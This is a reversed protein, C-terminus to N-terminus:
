LDDWDIGGQVADGSKARADGNEALKSQETSVDPSVLSTQLTGMLAEENLSRLLKGAQGGSNRGGIQTVANFAWTVRWASADMTNSPLVEHLQWPPFLLAEGTRPSHDYGQPRASVAM